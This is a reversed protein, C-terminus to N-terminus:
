SLGPPGQDRCHGDLDAEDYPDDQAGATATWEPPDPRSNRYRNHAPCALRGNEQTTLGGHEWPLVHDVQCRSAPAFCYPHTCGDHDRIEVARRTAGTFLRATASVDVRNKPGFVAREVMAQDLWPVLQGPSLVSGGNALECIRGHLTEYGVLVTFLPRPRIGDAPATRSRAAMEVLADVRRQSPTRRLDGAEPDRGLREKAEKWDGDFLEQELREWEDAIVAGSIPDLTMKGIYMGQFSKVLYADRRRRATEASDDAGDPDALGEWYAVVKEFHDFRLTKAKDVLLSEHEAMAAKTRDNRVSLLKALHSATIDGNLWAEGAVPMDKLVTGLRLRRRAEPLPLHFRTALWSGLKLAGDELWESSNQFSALARSWAADLRATQRALVEMARGDALAQPDTEVLEDLVASLRDLVDVGTSWEGDAPSVDRASEAAGASGDAQVGDARAYNGM